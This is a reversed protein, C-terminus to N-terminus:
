NLDMRLLGAAGETAPRWKELNSVLTESFDHSGGCNNVPSVSRTKKPEGSCGM